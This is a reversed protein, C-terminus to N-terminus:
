VGGAIIGLKLQVDFVLEVSGSIMGECLALWHQLFHRTYRNNSTLAALEQTLALHEDTSERLPDAADKRVELRGTEFLANIREKTALPRRFKTWWWGCRCNRRHWRSRWCSWTASCSRGSCHWWTGM